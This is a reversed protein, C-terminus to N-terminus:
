VKKTGGDIHSDFCKEVDDKTFYKAKCKTCVYKAGDRKFKVSKEKEDKPNMSMHSSGAKQNSNKTPSVM